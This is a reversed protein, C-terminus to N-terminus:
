EAAAQTGANDGTRANYLFFAGSPEGFQREYLKIKGKTRHNSLVGIILPIGLRDAAWKTFECLRRARGGKASRYDPHIFIAKEELVRSDSYWMSGIRLLVAGELIGNEGEIIGVLGDELNLAPWIESLLKQPNPSVFGNEECAALALDMMPHVDEPTGMRVGLEELM